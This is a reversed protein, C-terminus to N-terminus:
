LKTHRHKLRRIKRYSDRYCFIRFQITFPLGTILHTRSKNKLANVELGVEKSAVLVAGPNRQM